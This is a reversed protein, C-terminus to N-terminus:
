PRTHGTSFLRDLWGAHVARGAARVRRADEEHLQMGFRKVRDAFPALKMQAGSAAMLVAGQQLKEGLVVPEVARRQADTGHEAAWLM